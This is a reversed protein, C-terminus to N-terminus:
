LSPPLRDVCHRANIRVFSMDVCLVQVRVTEWRRKSKRIALYEQWPLTQQETETVPRSSNLTASANRTGKAKSSKPRAFTKPRSLNAARPKATCRLVGVLPSKLLTSQTLMHYHTHTSVCVSSHAGSRSSDVLSQHSTGKIEM